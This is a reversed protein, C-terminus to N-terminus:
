NQCRYIHFFFKLCFITELDENLFLVSYKQSSIEIFYIKYRSDIEQTADLIREEHDDEDLNYPLSTNETKIINSSQNNTNVISTNQLPHNFEFTKSPSLITPPLPPQQQQQQSAKLPHYFDNTNIISNSSHHQNGSNLIPNVQQQLQTPPINNNNNLKQEIINVRSNLYELQSTTKTELKQKILFHSVLLM